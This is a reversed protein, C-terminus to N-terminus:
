FFFVFFFWCYFWVFFVLFWCFGFCGFVLLFFGNIFWFFGELGVVRSGVFSIFCVGVFQYVFFFIFRVFSQLNSKEKVM